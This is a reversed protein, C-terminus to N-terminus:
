RADSRLERSGQVAAMMLGVGRVCVMMSKPTRKKKRGALVLVKGMEPRGRKQKVEILDAKKSVKRGRGCDAFPPEERLSRKALALRLKKGRRGGGNL